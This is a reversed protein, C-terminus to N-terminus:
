SQIKKAHSHIDRNNIKRPFKTQLSKGNANPRLKKEVTTTIFRISPRFSQYKITTPYTFHYILYSVYKSYITKEHLYIPNNHVSM